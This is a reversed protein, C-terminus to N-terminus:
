TAADTGQGQRTPASDTEARLMADIQARETALYKEIRANLAEFCPASRMNDFSPNALILRWLPRPNPTYAYELAACAEESRGERARLIARVQEHIMRHRPFQAEMDTMRKEIQEQLRSAAVVDGNLELLQMVNAYPYLAWMIVNPPLTYGATLVPKIVALARAYDGDSVAQRLLIHSGIMANFGEPIPEGSYIMDVVQAEKGEALLLAWNGFPSDPNSLARAAELNDVALYLAMLQDRLLVARPDLAIARRAYGIADAFYGDVAYVQSLQLLAGRYNPNLELARRDLEVAERWKGQGLMLNAKAHYNGPTLPDLAIATDISEIAKENLPLSGSQLRALLEYGRAYSPNLALGHRLDREAAAPDDALLSRLAYAEGLEPDLALAKDLLPAVVPRAQKIGTTPEAQILIADALRAYALAYNPDLTLARQLHEIAREADAVSRTILLQRARLLELQAEANVARGPLAIAKVERQLIRQIASAVDVAIDQQLAFWDAAARDYTETWIQTGSGSDVLKAKVVVHEANRRIDGELVYRVGLRGGLERADRGEEKFQFASSRATVRLERNRELTGFLEETLGDALLQNDAAESLNIFPLIAITAPAKAPVETPTSEPQREWPVEFQTWVAAVLAFAVIIGLVLPRRRSTDIRTTGAEDQVVPITTVFTEDATTSSIPATTLDQLAEQDAAVPMPFTAVYGKKHVTRIYRDSGGASLAQRLNFVARRVAEDSVIRGDWVVGVLQDRSLLEGPHAVMYEFLRAVRPELTAVYSGNRLELTNPDWVWDDFRISRTM